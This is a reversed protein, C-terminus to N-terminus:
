GCVTRKLNFADIQTAESEMEETTYNKRDKQRVHFIVVWHKLKLVNIISGPSNPIDLLFNNKAHSDITAAVNTLALAKIDAHTM